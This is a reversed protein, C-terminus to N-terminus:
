VFRPDKALRSLSQAPTEGSRPQAHAVHIATMEAEIRAVESIGLEPVAQPTMRTTTMSRLRYAYYADGDPLKWVGDDTTSRTLQGEFFAILKCYAPLHNYM